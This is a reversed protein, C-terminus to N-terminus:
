SVIILTNYKTYGIAYFREEENSHEIDPLIVTFYDDFIITSEDFSIGHKILNAKAKDEDWEFDIM